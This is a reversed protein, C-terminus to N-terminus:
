GRPKIDMLHLLRNNNNWPAPHAVPNEANWFGTFRTDNYSYWVGNYYLPIQPIEVANIMEIRDVIEKQKATDITAGLTEILQDLEPNVYNTMSTSWWQPGQAFRSHMTFDYFKWPSSQISGGCFCAEFNGGDWNKAYANAEPTVVSADIGAARLGEVAIAANNVWDTWGSPVQIKFQFTEGDQNEVFGNGNTDKFGGDALHQKAKKVDFQYFESWIKDADKNRWGWQVPPLDSAPNDGTVYGYAGIMMMADRDMALSFAKRFEVSEFARRASENETQFNMTIRVGDGSPFWYKNGEAQSVFTREVDPIFIGNWDTEGKAMMELAADNNGFQPFEVCEVSLDKNWYEGNTCQVYVQPTFRKLETMPGTGIMAEYTDNAPNEVKSWYHEPLMMLGQGILDNAAFANEGVLHLEVTYDDVKVAKEVKSAIGQTDIEPHDKPYTYTFVVDDATFDEGDSWKVGERLNLTLVKLDESMSYGTALWFHPKMNDIMNFIVLPELVMDVSQRGGIFPNFNQVWGTSFENLIRLNPTEAAQVSGIAFAMSTAVAISTLKNM